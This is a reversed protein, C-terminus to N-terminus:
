QEADGETKTPKEGCSLIGGFQLCHKATDPCRNYHENWKPARAAMCFHRGYNEEQWGEPRAGCSQEGDVLRGTRLDLATVFLTHDRLDPGAHVVLRHFNLMAVGAQSRVRGTSRVHVSRDDSKRDAQAYRDWLVRDAGESRRLLRRALEEELKARDTKGNALAM